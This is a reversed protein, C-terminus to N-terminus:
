NHRMRLDLYEFQANEKEDPDQYIDSLTEMMKEPRQYRKKSIRKWRPFLHQQANETTRGYIYVCKSENDAFHDYNVAFKNFIGVHWLDFTPSIGNRLPAPDEM